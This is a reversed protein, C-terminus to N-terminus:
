DLLWMLGVADVAGEAQLHDEQRDGPPIEAPHPHPSSSTHAVTLLLDFNPLKQM